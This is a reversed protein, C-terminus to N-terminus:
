DNARVGSIFVRGQNAAAIVAEPEVVIVSRATVALGALGAAVVGAVTNPGISPLDLRHDQSPKPAKVLVGVGPQSPLRNQQRLQAVRALMQDTGEAAEIALVHRDAVIVAQGIDFPGMATLVSFGYATDAQDRPQMAFRGMVGEPMLIEPAVEHAGLLRFGQEELLRAVGSLLHDDGGRFMSILRPLLRLTGFDLRLARVPPRLVYGIMVVDRCDSSRLLRFFRGLQGLAIWHHPYRAVAVADAFGRIPFLVVPRGDRVVRDAIVFPLSGGGCVLALPGRDSEVCPTSARTM